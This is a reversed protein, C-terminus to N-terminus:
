PRAPQEGPGPKTPRRGQLLVSPNREVEEGVRRLTTTLARLEGVLERVEPVAQGTIQRMEERTTDMTRQTSAGAAAVQGTMREFADATREVRQVLAPLQATVRAANEMTRATSALTADITSTRAALTRSLLELDALTHKIARRNDEDLLANVNDSVRSLNALLAPVSTELSSFLSPASAIVPYDEGAKAQLPPSDRHGAKLEVYAIGTLGQTELTAVTDTKIPTGREIDLVLQVLEVNGPALAIKRVRGVDVGRYRVAANLNLGSVSEVMYTHYTDYTKRYYKGSSLWLTGAILSVTLAIVFAGVAAFNVKAEM